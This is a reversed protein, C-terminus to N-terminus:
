WKALLLLDDRVAPKSPLFIYETGAIVIVLDAGARKFVTKGSTITGGVGDTLWQRFSFRDFDDIWGPGDPPWWQVRLVSPAGRLQSIAIKGMQTPGAWIDFRMQAQWFLDSRYRLVRTVAPHSDGMPGRDTGHGKADVLFAKPVDGNHAPM